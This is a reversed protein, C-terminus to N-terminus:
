LSPIRFPQSKPRITNAISFIQRLLSTREKENMLRPRGFEEIMTPILEISILRGQYFYFRDIMGQRTGIRRMQDFFLNGAGYHIFTGHDFEFTHPFHAQSGFVVVAGVEAFQRFERLMRQLPKYQYKEWHQITVMPLYGSARLRKVQSKM